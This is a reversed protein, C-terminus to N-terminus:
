GGLARACDARERHHAQRRSPRDLSRHGLARTSQPAPVRRRAGAPGRGGIDPLERALHLYSDEATLDLRVADLTGAIQHVQSDLISRATRTPTARLAAAAACGDGFIASGVTKARPDEPTAPTLIGSMSEAAVVLAQKGPQERMTQIALRMSRCAARAAWAPSTTSTPRRIWGTTTSSAIPSRPAASRTSARASSPASRTHTSRSRTSLM